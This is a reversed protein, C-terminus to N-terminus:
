LSPAKSIALVLGLKWGQSIRQHEMLISKQTTEVGVPTDHDWITDTIQNMITFSPTKPKKSPKNM